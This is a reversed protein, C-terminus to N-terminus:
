SKVKGRLRITEGAQPQWGVSKRNRKYLWKLRVGTKQSISHMTEGAAVKYYKQAGKKKKNRVFIKDGPQVVAEYSIDNYRLIKDLCRKYTKAIEELTEGEELVVYKSGNALSLIREEPLINGELGELDYQHLEWTEILNILASAYTPSTAYGAKKLGKAWGKYDTRDLEFLGAYRSRTSLFISHDRYSEEAHKYSRFCENKKDDDHYIKKGTWDNHCKIGFHNNAKTALRSQGDGSELIGQALTISAPINYLKMERIAVAKYQAIYNERHSQAFNLIPILFLLLLLKKM